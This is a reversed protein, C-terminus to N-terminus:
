IIAISKQKSDIPIAHLKAKNIHNPPEELYILTLFSRRFLSLYAEFHM